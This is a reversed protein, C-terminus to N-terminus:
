KVGGLAEVQQTLQEAKEILVAMQKEVELLEAYTPLGREGARYQTLIETLTTM